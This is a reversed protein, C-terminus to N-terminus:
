NQPERAQQRAKTRPKPAAQAMVTDRTQAMDKLAPSQREKAQYPQGIRQMITAPEAKSLVMGAKTEVRAQFGEPMPRGTREEFAARDKDTILKVRGINDRPVFTGEDIQVLAVGQAAIQDITEPAYFKTRPEDIRTNYRDADVNKGLKALSAREEDTIHRLRKITSIHLFDGDNVTIYETM